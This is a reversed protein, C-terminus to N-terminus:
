VREIQEDVDVLIRPAEDTGIAFNNVRTNQTIPRTALLPLAM